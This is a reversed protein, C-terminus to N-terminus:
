REVKMLRAREKASLGGWVGWEERQEIAHKLCDNKAPCTGCLRKAERISALDETSFWLDVDVTACVADRTWPAPKYIDQWFFPVGKSSM